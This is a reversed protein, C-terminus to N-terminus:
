LRVMVPMEDALTDPTLSPLTHEVADLVQIFLSRLLLISTETREVILSFLRVPHFPIDGYGDRDLDYGQYADWHNKSFRSSHHRSNTAVDFTNDIFNNHTFWNDQANAMIKVAWGNEIFDNHEFVNRNAGEAYIGITNKVFVNDDIISDTIDKLLLGFVASGWNHEFRNGVMEVNESYMVAVGADNARFVNSHYTCRDSFMFHLGYRLNSESINDIVASDEVFEFYIGDRHGRIENSVIEIEKSYWLHIGNGSRTETLGSGQITNGSLRCFSTRALYIGFYADIIRNDEVRCFAAGDIKLAARDEVFTVGVNRFELGQITVSDAVVTMIQNEGKGDLVPFDKGIITVAKDVLITPENYVGKLVLISDGPQAQRIAAGISHLPGESSVVVHQGLAGTVTVSAVLLALLRSM